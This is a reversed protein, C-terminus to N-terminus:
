CSYQGENKKETLRKFARRCQSFKVYHETSSSNKSRSRFWEKERCLSFTESDFWPPQFSNSIKIKPIHSNVVSFLQTKFNLWSTEMDNNLHLIHAWDVESLKNNILDWNAHKFNYIERKAIKKKDARLKLSFTIPFHNSKCLHWGEDVKVNAIVDQNYTM